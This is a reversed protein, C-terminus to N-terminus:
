CESTRCTKPIKASFCGFQASLELALLPLSSNLLEFSKALRWTRVLFSKQNPTHIKQSHCWLHFVKLGGQGVEDSGPGLSNSTLIESFNKNPVLSCDSDKSVKSLRSPNRTWFNHDSTILM